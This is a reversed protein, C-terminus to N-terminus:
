FVTRKQAKCHQMYDARLWFPPPSPSSLYFIFILWLCHNWGKLWIFSASNKIIAYFTRVAFGSRPRAPHRCELSTSSPSHAAAKARQWAPSAPTPLAARVLLLKKNAKCHLQDPLAFHEYYFSKIAAKIWSAQPPDTAHVHTDHQKKKMDTHVAYRHSYAWIYRYTEMNIQWETDANSLRKGKLHLLQM